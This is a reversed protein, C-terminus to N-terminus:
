PDGFFLAVKHREVDGGKYIKLRQGKVKFSNDEDGPKYIEIAGHSFVEKIVFPGSWRSKLKGPFLRLRSNFLLVMQGPQFVKPVLGKDHYRKTRAKYLVANDYARERWEELENLKLLRKEGALTADMNLFKVAWYAKHELVVSLHCAKGYVLQFLSFGLHTKYATRYAWLEEELKLSWDKRSSSVTKERIQKLQLNSVEVQGGTQPHYPTAVKHKVNYKALVNELHKNCFHKGEDSILIQPDGFRS